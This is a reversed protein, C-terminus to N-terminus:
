LKTCNLYAKKEYFLRETAFRVKDFYNGANKDLASVVELPKKAYPSVAM